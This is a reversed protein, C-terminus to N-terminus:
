KELLKNIRGLPLLSQKHKKSCSDEGRLEVSRYHKLIGKAISAGHRHHVAGGANKYDRATLYQSNISVYNTFWAEFDRQVKSGDSLSPYEKYLISIGELLEGQVKDGPWTRAILSAAMKAQDHGNKLARKFAGIKVNPGNLDGVTGYADPSGYVSLGCFNLDKVLQIATEDGGHAKHIFVEEANAQKRNEWNLKAFILHYEQEDEVDIIYAPITEKEPFAEKFMQRRHQGDLLFEQGKRVGGTFRAVIVNSFLNWDWGSALYKKTRSELVDRNCITDIDVSVEGTRGPTNIIEISM